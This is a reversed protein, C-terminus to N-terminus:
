TLDRVEVPLFENNVHQCKTCAFVPIPIYSPQGTGTLIGSVKRIYLAQQFYKHNCKDCVTEMTQDLSINLSHNNEM